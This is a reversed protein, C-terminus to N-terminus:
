MGCEDWGADGDIVLQLKEVRTLTMIAGFLNFIILPCISLAKVNSLWNDDLNGCDDFTYFKFNGSNGTLMLFNKGIKVKYEKMKLVASELDGFDEELREQWLCVLFNKLGTATASKIKKIPM